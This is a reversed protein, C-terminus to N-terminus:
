LRIGMERLMVFDAATLRPKVKKAIYTESFARFIAPVDFEYGAEAAHQVFSPNNMLQFIMPLANAMENM